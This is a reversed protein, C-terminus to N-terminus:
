VEGFKRGSEAYQGRQFAAGPTEGQVDGVKSSQGRQFAATAGPSESQVDGFRSRFRSGDAESRRDSNGAESQVDGVRSRSRSDGESLGGDVMHTATQVGM